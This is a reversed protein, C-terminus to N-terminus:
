HLVVGPRNRELWALAMEDELTWPMIRDDRLVCGEAGSLARRACAIEYPTM